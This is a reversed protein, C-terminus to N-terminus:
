GIDEKTEFVFVCAVYMYNHIPLEVLTRIVNQDGIRPSIANVLKNM